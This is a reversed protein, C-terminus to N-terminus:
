PTKLTEKHYLAGSITYNENYVTLTYYNLDLKFIGENKIDKQTLAETIQRGRDTRFNFSLVTDGEKICAKYDGCFLAEM